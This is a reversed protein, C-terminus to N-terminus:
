ASFRTFFRRWCMSAVHSSAIGPMRSMSAPLAHLLVPEIQKLLRGTKEPLSGFKHAVNEGDDKSENGKRPKQSTKMAFDGKFIDKEDTDSELKEPDDEPASEEGEEELEWEGPEDSEPESLEEVQTDDRSPRSAVDKQSKVQGDKRSSNASGKANAKLDREGEKLHQDFAFALCVLLLHLHRSLCAM